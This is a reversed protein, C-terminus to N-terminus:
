DTLSLFRKMRNKLYRRGMGTKLYKERVRADHDSICAEYYILTFPGRNRTSDVGGNNHMNFRKRLNNSSGIYWRGDKKSKLVYTYVM